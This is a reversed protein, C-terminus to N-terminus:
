KAAEKDTDVIMKAQWSSTKAAFFQREGTQNMIIVDGNKMYIKVSESQVKDVNQLVYDGVKVFIKGGELRIIIEVDPDVVESSNPVIATSM